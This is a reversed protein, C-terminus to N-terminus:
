LLLHYIKNMKVSRFVVPFIRHFVHGGICSVHWSTNPQSLVFTNIIPAKCATPEIMLITGEAQSRSVLPSSFSTFIMELIQSLTLQHRHSFSLSQIIVYTIYVTWLRKTQRQFNRLSTRKRCDGERSYKPNQGFMKRTIKIIFYRM